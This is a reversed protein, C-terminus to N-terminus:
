DLEDLLIGVGESSINTYLVYKKNVYYVYSPRHASIRAFHPIVM